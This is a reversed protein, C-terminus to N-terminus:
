SQAAPPQETALIDGWPAITTVTTALVQCKSPWVFTQVRGDPLQTVQVRNEVVRVKAKENGLSLHYRRDWPITPITFYHIFVYKM